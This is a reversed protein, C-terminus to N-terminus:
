KAKFALVSISQVQFKQAASLTSGESFQYSDNVKVTEVTLGAREIKDLYDNRELAGGICEAWLECNEQVSKPLEVGTVIDSFMLRGGPKLAAAIGDFVAGKDVVLNVVGNSIVCDFTGLASPIKEIYGKIFETNNVEFSKANAQSKELMADTMDIGVVRGSKGV